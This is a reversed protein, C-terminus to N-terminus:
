NKTNSKNIKSITIDIGNLIWFPIVIASFRWDTISLEAFVALAFGLYIAASYKM